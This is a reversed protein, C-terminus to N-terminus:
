ILHGRRDSMMKSPLTALISAADVDKDCLSPASLNDQLGRYTDSTIISDRWKLASNPLDACKLSAPSIKSSRTSKTVCTSSKITLNETTDSMLSYGGTEWNKLPRSYCPSSHPTRRSYTASGHPSLNVHHKPALTQPPTYKPSIPPM